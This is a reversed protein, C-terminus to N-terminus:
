SGWRLAMPEVRLLHTEVDPFSLLVIYSLVHSAWLPVNRRYMDKKGRLILHIKYKTGCDDIEVLKSKNGLDQLLM